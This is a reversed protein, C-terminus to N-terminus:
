MRMAQDALFAQFQYPLFRMMFAFLTNLLGPTVSARRALMARIGSAAVAKSEMMLARQYLTPKQGAVSLFETRTVGPSVVTCSVGTLRLEYHVAETLSFVYAKAASYAAYTPSPQFAGISAVNLIYGFHRQVMGDVFLRMLQSLAVVDLQLMDATREWPVEAFTGYLGYGANNILIDVQENSAQLRDFLHQPAGPSNLDLPFITVPVSHNTVIERQLDHLRDERRAVLVLGAGRRALERSFDAGLGSSAGTVLATKGQLSKKM